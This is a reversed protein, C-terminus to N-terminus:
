KESHNILTNLHKECDKLANKLHNLVEDTSEDTIDEKSKEFEELALQANKLNESLIDIPQYAATPDVEKNKYGYSFINRRVRNPWLFGGTCFGLLLLLCYLLTYFIWKIAAVVVKCKRLVGKKETNNIWFIESRLSHAAKIEEADDKFFYEHPNNYQDLNSVQNYPADKTWSFPYDEKLLASDFGDIKALICPMVSTNKGTCCLFAIARHILPRENIDVLFSIRNRWYFQSAKREAAGWADSVIAIIITLLVLIITLGFIIDVFGDNADSGGSIFAELVQYMCKQFSVQCDEEMTNKASENSDNNWALLRFVYAFCALFITSAIFFPILSRAIVILGGSFKAFPLFTSRLVVIIDIGLLVGAGLLYYIDSNKEYSNDTGKQRYFISLSIGVLVLRTIDFFNTKRVLYAAGIACFELIEMFIEMILYAFFIFIAFHHPREGYRLLKETAIIMVVFVLIRLILSFMLIFCPYRASLRQNICDQLDKNQEVRKCLLYSTNEDFEDLNIREHELLNKLVPTPADEKVALKLLPTRQKNKIHAQEKKYKYETEADLLMKVVEVKAYKNGCAYHLPTNGFKDGWFLSTKGDDLSLLWNIISKDYNQICAIILPTRGASDMSILEESYYQNNDQETFSKHVERLLLKCLQTSSKTLLAIHLAGIENISEVRSHDGDTETCHLPTLVAEKENANFSIYKENEDFKLYQAM